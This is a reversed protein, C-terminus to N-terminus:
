YRIKLLKEDWGKSILDKKYWNLFGFSKDICDPILIEKNGVIQILKGKTPKKNKKIDVGSKKHTGFRKNEELTTM